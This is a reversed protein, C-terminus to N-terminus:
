FMFLVMDICIKMWNDYFLKSNDLFDVYKISLGRLETFSPLRTNFTLTM